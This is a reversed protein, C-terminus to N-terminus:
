GLSKTLAIYNTKNWGNKEYFELSKNNTMDALLHLNHINNQTCWLECHKLLKQGIGKRRFGSDVCLDEIYATYSAKATSILTQLTCMGIIKNDTEAVFATARRGNNILFSLGKHQNAPDFEVGEMVFLQKLLVLMEEIDKKCAKRVTTNNIM